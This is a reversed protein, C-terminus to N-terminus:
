RKRKRAKSIMARSSSLNATHTGAETTCSPFPLVGAPVTAAFISHKEPQLLYLAPSLQCSVILVGITFRYPQKYHKCQSPPQFRGSYWRWSTLVM